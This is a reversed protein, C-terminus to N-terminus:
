TYTMRYCWDEKNRKRSGVESILFTLTNIRNEIGDKDNRIGIQKKTIIVSCQVLM